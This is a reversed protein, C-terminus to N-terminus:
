DRPSPSTYLLCIFTCDISNDFFRENTDLILCSSFGSGVEIIKQPQLHRIMANLYLGDEYGYAPNEYYYRFGNTKQAPFPYTDFLPKLTKLLELQDNTKLDIGPLANPLNGWFKEENELISEYDPIPSNFHGPPAFKFGSQLKRNERELREVDDILQRIAPIKKIIKKLFSSM